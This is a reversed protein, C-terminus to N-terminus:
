RKSLFPSCHPELFGEDWLNIWLGELVLDPHKQAPSALSSALVDADGGTLILVPSQSESVLAHERFAREIAGVLALISGSLLAADTDRAPHLGAEKETAPLAIQATRRVLGSVMARRGPLIYGGEHSGEANLLDITVASGADVIVAPLEYRARTAILGLWRDIGLSEPVRYASRVGSGVSRSVAIQVPMGWRKQVYASLAERVEPGAVNSLAVGRPHKLHKWAADLASIQNLISATPLSGTPELGNDGLEAWKVRTNGVDLLLWAEAM